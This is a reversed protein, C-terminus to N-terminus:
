SSNSKTYIWEDALVGMFVIDKPQNNIIVDQKFCGEHSFGANEYSRIGAINDAFVRLYIRNLKLETFGYELISKAALSGFGKGRASSEGIFIGFEAKKNQNDINKLFISGIDQQLTTDVIIFQSTKRTKVYKSLYKLHAESTLLEQTEFNRRVSPLNRWRVINNTDSEEIPRLDVLSENLM